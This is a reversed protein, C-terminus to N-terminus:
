IRLRPVIHRPVGRGDGAPPPVTVRVTRNLVDRFTRMWEAFGITVECGRALLLTGHATRVDEALVMGVELEELSLERAEDIRQYLGRVSALADLVDSDYRGRTSRMMDLALAPAIGQADLSDFDTAVRLIMAGRQVINDAPRLTDSDNSSAACAALIARVIELRPINALLQETVAPLRAVMKAEEDSLRQGRHLRELTAAPLAVCGLQSLMAAVEVQWRDQLDLKMALESVHLRIRLARGFLAPNTLSLVGALAQISGHLAQELLAHESMALRHRRVALDVTELLTARLCPKTLFRFIQGDNVAAIASELDSQGTLLVRVTDPSVERARKLFAAGDMKPMRMDSVVVAFGGDHLAELGLAGSSATTVEYDRRLHLAFVQLVAPEDDVCLVKTRTGADAMVESDTEDGDRVHIQPSRPSVPSGPPSAMPGHQLALDVGAKGDDNEIGM